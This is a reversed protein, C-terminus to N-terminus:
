RARRRSGEAAGAGRCARDVVAFGGPTERPRAPDIRAGTRAGRLVPVAAGTSRAGRYHGPSVDIAAQYFQAAERPKGLKEDVVGMELRVEANKPAIQLANQFEVRAKDFNGEALFAQGKELHRALRAQAGGCGAAALFAAALLLSLMPTSLPRVPM